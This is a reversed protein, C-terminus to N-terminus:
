LPCVKVHCARPRNRRLGAYFMVQQSVRPIRSDLLESKHLHYAVNDSGLVFGYGRTGDFSEVEGMLPTPAELREVRVARPSKGRAPPEEEVAVAVLEGLIPPPPTTPWFCSKTCNRCHLAPPWPGGPQFVGLHFFVESGDPVTAFGYLKEPIYKGVRLRRPRGFETM